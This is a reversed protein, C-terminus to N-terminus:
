GIIQRQILSPNSLEIRLKELDTTTRHTSVVLTGDYAKGIIRRQILLTHSLGIRLKALRARVTAIAKSLRGCGPLGHHGGLSEITIVGKNM